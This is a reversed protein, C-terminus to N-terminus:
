AAGAAPPPDDDRSRMAPTPLARIAVAAIASTVAVYWAPAAPNGTAGILWTVVIQASGGFLAVGGAYAVAIGTARVAPPLLAPIAAFSAAGSVANLGALVGTAVLLPLPGPQGVLWLFLPVVVVVTAARPWFMVPAAGIRDSLWGGLLAFLATSVGAVLTAALAVPAPLTLTTLAYTTMFTVVYTAITAGAIVLLGLALVRRRAALASLGRDARGVPERTLTEPMTRRLHYALPLLVLGVAFPVRWGWSQMQEPSLSVTLVGGILGAVAAAAGQSALQWSAYLGRARPPAAEVLFASVPGVEGGLAFGQLLRCLVVIVPASLGLVDYGPTLALAATSVTMLSMTLLLAARRGARDALAGIVVAGVPRTVFGVGFVALTLLLSAMPSTAPFFAKGIYVAFFAYVVFDYFEIANVAVAAAV